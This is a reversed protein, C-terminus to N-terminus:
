KKWQSYTTEEPVDTISEFHLDYGNPDKIAVDWMSNGVFPESPKLGKSLFENYLSLADECIFCISVGEGLKGQINQAFQKKYEQLMMAAGEKQLWCWEITGRPTWKNKMEFGLGDVYFKLSREMDITMFFPVAQRINQTTQINTDM